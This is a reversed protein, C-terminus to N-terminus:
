VTTNYKLMRGLYYGQIGICIRIYQTHQPRYIRLFLTVDTSCQPTAATLKRTIPRFAEHMGSICNPRPPAAEPACVLGAKHCGDRDLWPFAPEMCGRGLRHEVKDQHSTGCLKALYQSREYGTGVPSGVRKTSLGSHPQRVYTHSLVIFLSCQTSRAYPLTAFAALPMCLRMPVVRRLGKINTPVQM